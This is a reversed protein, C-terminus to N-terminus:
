ATNCNKSLNKPPVERLKEKAKLTMVGENSDRENKKKGGFSKKGPSSLLTGRLVSASPETFPGAINCELTSKGYVSNQGSDRHLSVAQHCTGVSPHTEQTRYFCMGPPSSIAEIEGGQKSTGIKPSM